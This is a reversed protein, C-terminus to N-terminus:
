TRVKALLQGLEVAADKVDESVDVHILPHRDKPIHADAHCAEVLERVKEIAAEDVGLYRATAARDASPIITRTLMNGGSCLHPTIDDGCMPCTKPAFTM